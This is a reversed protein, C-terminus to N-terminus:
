LKEVDEVTCNLMDFPLINLFRESLCCAHTQTRHWKSSDSICMRSADTSMLFNLVFYGGENFDQRFVALAVITYTVSSSVTFNLSLNNVGHSDLGRQIPFDKIAQSKEKNQVPGPCSIWIGKPRLPHCIKTIFGM